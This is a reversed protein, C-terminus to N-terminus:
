SRFFQSEPSVPQRFAGCIITKAEPMIKRIAKDRCAAVRGFRVLDAGYEMFKSIIQEKLDIM